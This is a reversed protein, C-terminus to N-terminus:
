VKEPDINVYVKFPAQASGEYENVGLSKLLFVMLTDSTALARKRAAALLEDAAEGVAMAFARQYEEDDEVWRYHEARDMGVMRAAASVNGVRGFADLFAKKRAPTGLRSKAIENPRQPKPELDDM